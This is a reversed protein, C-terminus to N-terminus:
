LLFKKIAFLLAIFGLFAVLGWIRGKYLQDHMKRDKIYSYIMIGIFVKFGINRGKGDKSGNGSFVSKIRIKLLKLFLEM